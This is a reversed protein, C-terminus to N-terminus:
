ISFNLWNNIVAPNVGPKLVGLRVFQFHKIAKPFPFDIKTKVKGQVTIATIVRQKAKKIGKTLIQKDLTMPPTGAFAANLISARSHNISGQRHNFTFCPGFANLHNLHWYGPIGSQNRRSITLTQGQGLPLKDLNVNTTFRDILPVDLDISFNLFTSDSQDMAFLVM